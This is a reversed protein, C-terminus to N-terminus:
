AAALLSRLRKHARLRDLCRARTPGISGVPMGLRRGIEDYSIEADDSLLVLLERHRLPLAALGAYLAQRRELAELQDVFDPRHVSAFRPDTAPDAPQCRKQSGLLRISENRTTTVIWGPLARPERLTQLHEILKLWVIQGVDDADAARLHYRAAAVTRILPAFRQHLARWAQQDGNVAAAVIEDLSEPGSNPSDTWTSEGTTRSLPLASM